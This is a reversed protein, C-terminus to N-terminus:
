KSKILRRVKEDIFQFLLPSVAGSSSLLVSKYLPDIESGHLAFYVLVGTLGGAIGNKVWCVWKTREDSLLMRIMAGALGLLSVIWGGRKFDAAAQAFDPDPPTM